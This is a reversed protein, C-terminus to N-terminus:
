GLFATSQVIYNETMQCVPTVRIGHSNSWRHRPWALSSGSSVGNAGAVRISVKTYSSSPETEIGSLRRM